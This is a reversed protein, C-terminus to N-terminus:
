FDLTAGIKWTRGAGVQLELPNQAFVRMDTTGLDYGRITPFYRAEFINQVGARIKLNETPRWNLYADWM